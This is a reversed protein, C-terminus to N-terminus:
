IVAACGHLQSLLLSPLRKSTACWILETKDANLQLGNSGMWSLIDYTCASVRAALDEMHSHSCRDCVQTDDAFLHPLLNHREIIRLLDPTNLVCLIPGLISGQHNGCFIPTFSSAKSDRRDSQRRGSLYSEFWHLVM